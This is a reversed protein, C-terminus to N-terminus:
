EGLIKGTSAKPRDRRLWLVIILLFLAVDGLNDLMRNRPVDRVYAYIHEAVEASLVIVLAVILFRSWTQARPGM